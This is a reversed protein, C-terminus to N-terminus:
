ARDNGARGELDIRLAGETEAALPQEGDPANASRQGRGEVAFRERHAQWWEAAAGATWGSAEPCALLAARLELASQYRAAPEKALCRLVAADLAPSVVSSRESPPRPPTQLHATCVEVISSGSFPPHGTLLFYAVAGLSYLDSRANVDAPSTISEPAIYLPTGVLIASQRSASAQEANLDMVLGFDLVKAVDGERGRECVIVNSPKIDRHVLGLAHAEALARCVQELIWIARSPELPGAYAVLQELDGGELYEMAYYFVGDPTRGYDFVAVTNQHTLQATLKVEREFRLLSHPSVRTPLLLKVATDRRLLAHTARYVVGMGGEGVKERLVYQGVRAIERVRRRLGYIVSSALVALFVTVACNRLVVYGHVLWDHTTAPHELGTVRLWTAVLGGPLVALLSVLLTRSASSPLMLARAMMVYTVGLLLSISAENPPRVQTLSAAIMWCTLASATADLVWLEKLKRKGRYLRLALAGNGIAIVLTSLVILLPQSLPQDTAFAAIFPSLAYFASVGALVTFVLMLRRQLHQRTEDDALEASASSISPDRV